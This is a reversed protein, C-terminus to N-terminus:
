YEFGVEVNEELSKNKDNKFHRSMVSAYQGSFDSTLVCRPGVCVLNEVGEAANSKSGLALQVYYSHRGTQKQARFLELVSSHIKM